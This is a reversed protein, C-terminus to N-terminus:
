LRHFHTTKFGNEDVTSNEPNDNISLVPAIYTCKTGGIPDRCDASSGSNENLSNALFKDIDCTVTSQFTGNADTPGTNTQEIFRRITKRPKYIRKKGSGNPTGTNEIADEPNPKV